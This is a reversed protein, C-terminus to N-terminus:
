RIPSKLLGSLDLDNVTKSVSGISLQSLFAVGIFFFVNPTQSTVIGFLSPCHAM